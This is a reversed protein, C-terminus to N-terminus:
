AATGNSMILPLPNVAGAGNVVRVRLDFTDNDFSGARWDIQAGSPTYGALGSVRVEPQEEGALFAMGITVDGAGGANGGKPALIWSTSNGALAPLFRNEVIQIDGLAVPAETRTETGSGIGYVRQITNQALVAEAVPVLAPDVVLAMPGTVVPNGQSDKKAKLQARAHVLAAYSLIPNVTTATGVPSDGATVAAVHPQANAAAHLAITANADLTDVATRALISPMSEVTGFPDNVFAEWTFGIQAGFKEVMWGLTTSSMAFSQYEEGEAVKPLANGLRPTGKNDKKFLSFDLGFNVWNIQRFDQVTKRAAFTQWIAPYEAYNKQLAVNTLNAFAYVGDTTGLRELLVEKKVRDGNIVAEVLGKIERLAEPHANRYINRGM